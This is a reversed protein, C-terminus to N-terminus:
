PLPVIEMPFNKMDDPLAIHLGYISIRNQFESKIAELDAVTTSPAFIALVIVSTLAAAAVIAFSRHM